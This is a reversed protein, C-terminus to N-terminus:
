STSSTEDFGTPTRRPTAPNSCAGYVARGVHEIFSGFIRPDTRGQKIGSTMAVGQAVLRQFILYLLVTPIAALVATAPREAATRHVHDRCRYAAPEGRAITSDM